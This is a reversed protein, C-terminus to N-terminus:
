WYYLENTALDLGILRCLLEINPITFTRVEHHKGDRLTIRFRGQVVKIVQIAEWAYNKGEMLLGTRSHVAVTGFALDEGSQYRKSLPPWLLAYVAKKAHDLDGVGPLGNDGLLNEDLIVQEGNLNTLTHETLDVAKSRFALNSHIAAVENWRWVHIDKSGTRYAFGDHYRVFVHARPTGFEPLLQLGARKLVGAARGLGTVQEFEPPVPVSGDSRAGGWAPKLKSQAAEDDEDAEAQDTQDEDDTQTALALQLRAKDLQFQEYARRIDPPMAEVSDYDTGKFHIADSM